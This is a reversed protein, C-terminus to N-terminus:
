TKKPLPDGVGQVGARLRGDRDATRKILLEHEAASNAMRTEVRQPKSGHSGLGALCSTSIDAAKM